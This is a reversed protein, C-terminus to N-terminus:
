EVTIAYHCIGGNKSIVWRRMEIIISQCRSLIIKERHSSVLPLQKVLVTLNSSFTKINQKYPASLSKQPHLLGDRVLVLYAQTCISYLVHRLVSHRMIREGSCWCSRLFSTVYPSMNFKKRRVTSVSMKSQVSSLLSPMPVRGKM